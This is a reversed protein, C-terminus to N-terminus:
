IARSRRFGWTLGEAVVLQSAECFGRPPPAAGASESAWALRLASRAALAASFAWCSGALNLPSSFKKHSAMLPDVGRFAGRVPLFYSLRRTDNIERPWYRVSRYEFPQM